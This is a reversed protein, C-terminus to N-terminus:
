GNSQHGYSLDLFPVLFHPGKINADGVVNEGGKKSGKKKREKKKTDGPEHILINRMHPDMNKVMSASM